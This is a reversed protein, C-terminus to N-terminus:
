LGLIRSFTPDPGRFVPTSPPRPPGQVGDKPGWLPFHWVRPRGKQRIFGSALRITPPGDGFFGKDLMGSAFVCIKEPLTLCGFYGRGRIFPSM